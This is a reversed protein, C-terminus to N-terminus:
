ESSNRAAAKNSKWRWLSVSIQTRRTPGGCKAERLREADGRGVAGRVPQHWEPGPRRLNIILNSVSNKNNECNNYFYIAIVM